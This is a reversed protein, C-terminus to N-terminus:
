SIMLARTCRENRSPVVDIYLPVVGGFLVCSTARRDAAFTDHFHPFSSHPCLRPARTPSSSEVVTHIRTHLHGLFYFALLLILPLRSVLSPFPLAAASSATAAVCLLVALVGPGSPRGAAAM